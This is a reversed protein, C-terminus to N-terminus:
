SEDLIKQYRRYALIGERVGSAIVLSAALCIFIMSVFIKGKQFDTVAIYLEASALGITIVFAVLTSSLNIFNLNNM